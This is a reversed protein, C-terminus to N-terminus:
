KLEVVLVTINDHGGRDNALDVLRHALSEFDTQGISARIIEAMEPGSVLSFLGDTCLVLCQGARYERADNDMEKLGGGLASTLINRQPHRMAEEETLSGGRVMEGVLSHDQTVKVLADASVLYARSDGVHGWYLNGGGVLFSTMTTGMNIIGRSRAEETVARDAAEIARSLIEEPAAETGDELAKRVYDQLTIMALASAEEGAEYGGMGDAVAVLYGPWAPSLNLACYNDENSSRVLGVHSCASIRM